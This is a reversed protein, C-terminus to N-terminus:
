LSLSATSISIARCSPCSGSIVDREVLGPYTGSDKNSRRAPLGSRIKRLFGSVNRSLQILSMRHERHVWRWEASPECRGIHNVQQASHRTRHFTSRCQVREHVPVSHRHELDGLLRDLGGSQWREPFEVGADVYLDRVLGEFQPLSSPADVSIGAGAFIVLSGARQAEILENSLDVRSIWM